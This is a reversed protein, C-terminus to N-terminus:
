VNKDHWFNFVFVLWLVRSHDQKGALHESYLREVYTQEVFDHKYYKNEVLYSKILESEKIWKSIPVAFGKKSRYINGKPVYKEAIKKLFYKTELGRIKQDDPLSLVLPVLRFDLFPNRVELSNMMSAADVKTLIDDVLYTRMDTMQVELLSDEPKTEILKENSLPPFKFLKQRQTPNTQSLWNLHRRSAEPHYDSIFKKIKFGWSLNKDSAPIFQAFFRLGSIVFNPVYSSIKYAKYADYGGFVEDAADGSLAVTVKQRTMRSLLFTPLLSADGFPEDLQAIIQPILNEDLELVEIHHRTKIHDAVQKAYPLENFSEERFGISFTDFDQKKQAIIASVLSSDVGGSLFSGVPVDSILRIEVANELLAPIQELRKELPIKSCTEIEKELDFYKELRAEGTQLDFFLHHSPPLKHIKTFISRNNPIYKQYFYGQLSETDIQLDLQHTRIAKLESSFILKKQDHYYYLPKVGFRDRSLILKGKAQDYLCFAWMGNMKPVFATGWESYAHLIVETDSESEFRHGLGELERRIEWFNYIEGNFTIWVNQYQMPQAGKESLDLISLRRHGLSVSLDVMSGEADPGRHSIRDTMKKLLAEDAWSFGAIGCM